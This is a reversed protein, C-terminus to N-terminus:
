TAGPQNNEEREKERDVDKFGQLTELKQELSYGRVFLTSIFIAGSLATMVLWVTKISDAYAQVLQTKAIGPEMDQIIRAVETADRSYAVASPALLPYKTVNKRMQNQLVVGGVGVGLSQGIVRIFSYFTIAHGADQPRGAAQVGLSMSTFAMGTGIAVPINLFIFAPISTSPNLLYLLGFGLTTIAWGIWLAWRYRRAILVTEPLVAIGAIIPTYGQKRGFVHSLGGIVPQIVASAILFSTGSWFAELATGNLRETIVPLAISLSTADLAAALTIICISAFALIFSKGPKFVEEVQQAPTTDQIQDPSPGEEASNANISPAM